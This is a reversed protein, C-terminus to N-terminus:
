RVTVNKLSDCPVCAMGLGETDVTMIRSSGVYAFCLGTRNDKIYQIDDGDISVNTSSGVGCGGLLALTFIIIIKKM